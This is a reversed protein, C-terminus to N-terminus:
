YTEEPTRRRSLIEGHPLLILCNCEDAPKMCATSPCVIHREDRQKLDDDTGKWGIMILERGCKCYAMFELGDLKLM